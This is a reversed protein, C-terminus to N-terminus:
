VMLSIDSIQNTADSAKNQSDLVLKAARKERKDLLENHLAAIEADFDEGAGAYTSLQSLNL